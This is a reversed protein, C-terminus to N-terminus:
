PSQQLQAKWLSFYSKTKVHTLRMLKLNIFNRNINTITFSLSPILHHISNISCENFDYVLTSTSNLQSSKDKLATYCKYLLM